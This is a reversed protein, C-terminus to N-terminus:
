LDIKFGFVTGFTTTTNADDDSYSASVKGGLEFNDRVFCGMSISAGIISTRDTHDSDRNVASLTSAGGVSVTGKKLTFGDVDYGAFLVFATVALLLLKKLMAKAERDPNLNVELSWLFILLFKLTIILM